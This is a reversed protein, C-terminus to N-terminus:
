VAKILPIKVEFDIESQNIFVQKETLYQYRMALNKLGTKTSESKDFKAIHENKISLYDESWTLEIRLPQSENGQNHNIINEVLSQIANPPLVRSILLDIPPTCFADFNYATGFRKKLLFIYNEVFMWEEELLVVDDDKHSILYRYLSAFRHLYETAVVKDQQILAGLVNLNNFLFHPDLQQKLLKLEAEKKEKVSIALFNQTEIFQKIIYIMSLPAAFMLHYQITTTITDLNITLECECILMMVYRSLIADLVLFILLYVVILAYRKKKLFYPTLIFSVFYAIALPNLFEFFAYVVTRLLGRREFYIQFDQYFFPFALLCVVFAIWINSRSFPKSALNNEVEM